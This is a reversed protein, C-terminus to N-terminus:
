DIEESLTRLGQFAQRRRVVGRVLVGTHMAVTNLLTVTEFQVFRM